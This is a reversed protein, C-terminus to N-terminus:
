CEGKLVVMEFEDPTNCRDLGFGRKIISQVLLPYNCEAETLNDFYANGGYLERVENDVAQFLAYATSPVSEGSKLGARLDCIEVGDEAENTPLFAFEPHRMQLIIAVPDLKTVGTTFNHVGWVSFDNMFLLGQEYARRVARKEEATIM